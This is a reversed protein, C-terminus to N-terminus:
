AQTVESNQYEDAIGHKEECQICYGAIGQCNYCTMRDCEACYYARSEDEAERSITKGCIACKM